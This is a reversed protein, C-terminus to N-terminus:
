ARNKQQASIKIQQSKWKFKRRIKPRLFQIYGYQHSFLMLAACNRTCCIEFLHSSCLPWKTLWQLWHQDLSTQLLCQQKKLIIKSDQPLTKFKDYSASDIHTHIQTDATHTLTHVHTKYFIYNKLIFVPKKSLIDGKEGSRGKKKEKTSINSDWLTTLKFCCIFESSM